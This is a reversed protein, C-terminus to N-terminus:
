CAAFPWRRIPWRRRIPLSRSQPRTAARPQQRRCRRRVLCAPRRARRQDRRIRADCGAAPRQCLRAPHPRARCRYKRRRPLRARSASVLQLYKDRIDATRGEPSHRFKELQTALTSGGAAPHDPEIVSQMQDIVARGLRDWEVAPNHTPSKPDLLERNEIFRWRARSCRRSRRRMPISSCRIAARYLADARCGVIQLGAQSKENFPPFFGQRMYDVLAPSQRAQAVVPQNRAALREAFAPM